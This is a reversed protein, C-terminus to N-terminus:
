AEGAGIVMGVANLLSAGIAVAISLWVLFTRMARKKPSSKIVKVWGACATRNQHESWYPLPAVQREFKQLHLYLSPPQSIVELDNQSFSKFGRELPCASHGQEAPWGHM